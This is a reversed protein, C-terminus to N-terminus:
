MFRPRTARGSRPPGPAQLLALAPSGKLWHIMTSSMTLESWWMQRKRKWCSSFCWPRVRSCLRHMGVRRVARLFDPCYHIIDLQLRSGRVEEFFNGPGPPGGLKRGSWDEPMAVRGCDSHILALVNWTLQDYLRRFFDVRHLLDQVGQKARM